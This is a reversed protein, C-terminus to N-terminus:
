GGGVISALISVMLPALIALAYGIAASKLAIKAKEVQGPDGGATVYRLGGITLFLTAVGTLIGVIWNRLNDIVGSLTTTDAFAPTAFVLLLGVSCTVAVLLRRLMLRPRAPRPVAYAMLRHRLAHPWDTRKTHTPRTTPLEKTRDRRSGPIPRPDAPLDPRVPNPV